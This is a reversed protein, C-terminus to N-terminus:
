DKQSYFNKYKIKHLLGSALTADLNRLVNYQTLASVRDDIKLYSLGLRFRAAINEPGLELGKETYFIM